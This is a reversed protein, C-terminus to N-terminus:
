LVRGKGIVQLSTLRIERLADDFEKEATGQDKARVAELHAMRAPTLYARIRKGADTQWERMFSYDDAVSTGDKFRRTTTLPNGGLRSVFKMQEDDTLPATVRHAIMPLLEGAPGGRNAHIEEGFFNLAPKGFLAPTFPVNAFIRTAWGGAKPDMPGYLIQNVEQGIRPFLTVGLLRGATQAAKEAGGATSRGGTAVEIVDNLNKLVAADAFSGMGRMIAYFIKDSDATGPKSYRQQDSWAGLAALVPFAPSEQFRLSYKGGFRMTMPQNGKERWLKNKAPDEPGKGTIFFGAKDEDDDMSAKALLYLAVAMTTGIMAKTRLEISMEDSIGGAPLNWSKKIGTTNWLYNTVSATKGGSSKIAQARAFGWPSWDLGQAFAGIPMRIAPLLFKLFPTDKVMTLLSNSLGGLVGETANAITWRKAKETSQTLIEAREQATLGLSEGMKSEMVEGFAVGREQPQLRGEAIMKDVERFADKKAQEFSGGYMADDIAKAWGEPTIPPSDTREHILKIMANTKLMEYAPTRNFIDTGVMARRTYKSFKALLKVKSAWFPSLPKGEQWLRIETDPFQALTEMDSNSFQTTFDSELKSRGTGWIYLGQYQLDKTFGRGMARLLASRAGKPIKSDPNQNFPDLRAVFVANDAMSKVFGWVANVKMTSLVNMFINSMTWEGLLGSAYVGKASKIMGLYTATREDRATQPLNPDNSENIVKELQAKFEPSFKKAGMDGLMVKEVNELNLGGLSALKILKQAETLPGEKRTNRGSAKKVVNEIQKEALKLRKADVKKMALEIVPKLFAQAQSETLGLEDALKLTMEKLSSTRDEQRAMQVIADIDFGFDRAIYEIIRKPSRRLLDTKENESLKDPTPVPKGAKRADRVSNARKLRADRRQMRYLTARKDRSEKAAERIAARQEKTDARAAAARNDDRVKKEAAREAQKRQIEAVREKASRNYEVMVAGVVKDITEEDLLKSLPRNPDRLQKELQEPTTRSLAADKVVKTISTGLKKMESRLISAIQKEGYPASKDTSGEATDFTRGISLQMFARLKDLSIADYTEPDAQILDHVQQLVTAATDQHALLLGLAFTMNDAGPPQKGGLGAKSLLAQSIAAAIKRETVKLKKKAPPNLLRELNKTIRAVAMGEATDSNDPPADSVKVAKTETLTKQLKAIEAQTSKIAADREAKTTIAALDKTLRPDTDEGEPLSFVGNLAQLGNLFRLNYFLKDAASQLKKNLSGIGKALWGESIKADEVTEIIEPLQQEELEIEGAASADDGKAVDALGQEVARVIDEVPASKIADTTLDDLVAETATSEEEFEKLKEPSGDFPVLRDANDVQMEAYNGIKLGGDFGKVFQGGAAAEKNGIDVITRLNTKAEDVESADSTPSKIIERLDDVMLGWYAGPTMNFVSKGSNLIMDNLTAVHDKFTAGNSENKVFIDLAQDYAPQMSETGYHMSATMQRVTTGPQNAALGSRGLSYRPEPPEPIFRESLPIVRGSRDKLVPDASERNWNFENQGLKVKEEAEISPEVSSHMGYDARWIYRNGYRDTTFRTSSGSPDKPYEDRYEKDIQRYDSGSPNRIVEVDSGVYFVKRPKLRAADVMRQATEMDGSEVAALYPADNDALSNGSVANGGSEKLKGALVRRNVRDAFEQVTMNPDVGKSKMFDELWVRAKALWEKIRRIMAGNGAYARILDAGKNSIATAMVEEMFNDGELTVGQSEYRRRVAEALPSDRLIAEGQAYLEPFNTRMEPVLGHTIEHLPTAATVQNRNLFVTDQGNLRGRSGIASGVISGDPTVGTDNIQLAASTVGLDRLANFIKVAETEHIRGKEDILANDARMQALGEPTLATDLATDRTISPSVAEGGEVPEGPIPLPSGSVDDVSNVEGLGPNSPLVYGDGADLDTPPIETDSSSAPASELPTTQIIPENIVPNNNTFAELDIEDPTFLEPVAEDLTTDTSAPTSAIAPAAVPVLPPPQRTANAEAIVAAAEPDGAAELAAEARNARVDGILGVGGFAAGGLAGGAAAQLTGSFLGPTEVGDPALASITANGVTNAFVEEATESGVAKAFGGAAAPSISRLGPIKSVAKLESGMGGLFPIKESVVETLGGLLAATYRDGGTIGYQDATQAAGGAGALFGTGLGGVEAGLAAAGLGKGILGGAGATGIFAGVNGAVNGVFNATDQEPNVNFTNNVSQQAEVGAQEVANSGTLIGAGQIAATGTNLAGRALSGLGSSIMGQGNDFSAVAEQRAGIIDEDSVGAARYEPVLVADVWRARVEGQENNNLDSFGPDSIVEEWTM